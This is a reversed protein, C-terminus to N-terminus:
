YLKGEATFEYDNAEITEKIAEESTQYDYEKSLIIRYDELLDCLFETEMDDHECTDEFPFGDPDEKEHEATAKNYAELYKAATQYTECSQGHEKSILRCVEELHETFEGEINM